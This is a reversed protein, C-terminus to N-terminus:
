GGYDNWDMVKGRASKEADEANWINRCFLGATKARSDEATRGRWIEITENERKKVLKTKLM